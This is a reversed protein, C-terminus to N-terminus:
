IALAPRLSFAADGLDNPTLQREAMQLDSEKDIEFWKLRDCRVAALKLREQAVLMSLLQETYATVAGSRILGDLAPMVAQRLSDASFRFLNITKYLAAAGTQRDAPTQKLRVDQVYNKACLTVASGEMTEDFPAVAAVDSERSSLVRDLVAREFFVDGELLLCDGAMLADRALWLSYASGTRDFVGSECYTIELGGFYQGFFKQIREKRYGVVITARRVGAAELQHLAHHLLPVGFIPVLPKPRDDTLPRLRSGLGAALIVAREPVARDTM